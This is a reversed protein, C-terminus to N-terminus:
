VGLADLALLRYLEHEAQTPTVSLAYSWEGVLTNKSRKLLTQEDLNLSHAQRYTALSRIVRFLSETRGDKLWEMLLTKRERREDPLPEGPQSLTDVLKQFEATRTPFRLRTELQEDAPVWVMM